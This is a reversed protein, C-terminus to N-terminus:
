KKDEFVHELVDFIAVDNLLMAGDNWPKSYVLATAFEKKLKEFLNSNEDYEGGCDDCMGDSGIQEANLKNNCGPDDCVEGDDCDDVGFSDVNDILRDIRTIQCDLDDVVQYNTEKQCEILSEKIHGLQKILENIKM